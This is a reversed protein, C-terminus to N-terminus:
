LDTKKNSIINNYDEDTIENPTIYIMSIDNNLKSM